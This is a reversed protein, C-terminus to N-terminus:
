TSTNSLQITSNFFNFSFFSAFHILHITISGTVYYRLCLVYFVAIPILPILFLPYSISITAITSILTFFMNILLKYNSPITEEVAEVDKTFRNLIRGIPTSDFFSLRNRLVSTLLTSHLVKSSSV